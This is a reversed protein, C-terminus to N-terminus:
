PHTTVLKKTAETEAKQSPIRVEMLGQGSAVFMAATEKM